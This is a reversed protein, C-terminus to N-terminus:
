RREMAGFYDMMSPPNAAAGLFELMTGEGNNEPNRNLQGEPIGGLLNQGDLSTTPDSHALGGNTLDVELLIEMPSSGFLNMLLPNSFNMNSSNTSYRTLPNDNPSQSIEHAPLRSIDDIAPIEENNSNLSNFRTYRRHSPFILSEIDSTDPIESNLTNIDNQNSHAPNPATSNPNENVLSTSENHAADEPNQPRFLNGFLINGMQELIRGFDSGGDIPESHAETAPRPNGPRLNNGIIPNADNRALFERSQERITNRELSRSTLQRAGRPRTSHSSMLSPFVQDFCVSNLDRNEGNGAQHPHSELNGQLTPEGDPASLENLLNTNVQDRIMSEIEPNREVPIEGEELIQNDRQVFPEVLENYQLFYRSCSRIIDQLSFM